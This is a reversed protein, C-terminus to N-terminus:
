VLIVEGGGSTDRDLLQVHKFGPLEVGVVVQHDRQRVAKAAPWVRDDPHCV